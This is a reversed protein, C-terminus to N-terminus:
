VQGICCCRTYKNWKSECIKTFSPNREQPTAVVTLEGAVLSIAQSFSRESIIVKM